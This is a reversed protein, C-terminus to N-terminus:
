SKWRSMSASPVFALSSRQESNPWATTVCMAHLTDLGRATTTAEASGFAVLVYFLIILLGPVLSVVLFISSWWLYRRTARLRTLEVSRTTLPRVILATPVLLVLSVFTLPAGYDFIPIRLPLRADCVAAFWGWAAAANLATFFGLVRRVGSRKSQHVTESYARRGLMALPVAMVVCAIFAPYIWWLFM